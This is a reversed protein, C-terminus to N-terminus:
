GQASPSNWDTVGEGGFGPGFQSSVSYSSSEFNGNQVLNGGAVAAPAIALAAMAALVAKM